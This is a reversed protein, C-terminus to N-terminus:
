GQFSMAQPSGYISHSGIRRWRVGPQGDITVFEVTARGDPGSFLWTMEWVGRASGMPSVRFSAPWTVVRDDRVAERNGAAGISWLIGLRVGISWLHRSVPAGVSNRVM